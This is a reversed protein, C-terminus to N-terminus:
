QQWNPYMDNTKGDNTINTLNSGDANMVYIDWQFSDNRNSMFAIQRGDPSWTPARDDDPDLTLNVVNTGDANMVFIDSEYAIGTGAYAILKGDPSWAPHKEDGPFDTLRVPNGGFESQVYIDQQANSEMDYRVFAIQGSPGWAPYRGGGLFVPKLNGGIYIKDSQSTFVISGGHPSWDPADLWTGMKVFPKQNDGDADMVYIEPIGRRDSVFVIQKGDPSWAPHSDYAFHNTLNTPNTGDSNIAFIEGSAEFVIRGIRPPTAPQPLADRPPEVDDSGAQTQPKKRKDTPVREIPESTKDGVVHHRHANFTTELVDVRNELDDNGGCAVILTLLILIPMRKM